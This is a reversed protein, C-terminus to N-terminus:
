LVKRTKEEKDDYHGDELAKLVYTVQRLNQIGGAKLALDCMESIIKVADDKIKVM